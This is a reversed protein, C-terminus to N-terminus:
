GLHRGCVFIMLMTVIVGFSSESRTPQDKQVAWRQQLLSQGLPSQSRTFIAGALAPDM